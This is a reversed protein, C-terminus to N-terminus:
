RPFRGQPSSVISGHEARRLSSAASQESDNSLSSKPLLWRPDPASTKGERLACQAKRRQLSKTLLVQHGVNVEGILKMNHWDMVAQSGSIERCMDVKSHECGVSLNQYVSSVWRFRFVDGKDLAGCLM